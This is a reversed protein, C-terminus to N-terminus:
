HRLIVNILTVVVAPYQIKFYTIPNIHNQYRYMRSWRCIYYAMPSVDARLILYILLYIFLECGGREGVAFDVMLETFTLV